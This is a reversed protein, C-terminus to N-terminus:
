IAGFSHRATHLQDPLKETSGFDVSQAQDHPFLVFTGASGIETQWEGTLEGKTTLTARAALHGFEYSKVQTEPEGTLSLMGGNFSGQVPYVVLGVGRENLHLTGVLSTDESELRVFLNGTNTGFASGAWLHELAM